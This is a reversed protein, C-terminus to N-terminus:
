PDRFPGGVTLVLSRRGQRQVSLGAMARGPHVRRLAVGARGRVHMLVRLRRPRVVVRVRVPGARRSLTALVEVVEAALARARRGGLGALRAFTAVLPALSAAATPGGRVVAELTEGPAPPPASPHVAAHGM